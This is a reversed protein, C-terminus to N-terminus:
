LRVNAQFGFAQSLTSSKLRRVSNAKGKRWRAMVVGMAGATAAKAFHHLEMKEVDKLM